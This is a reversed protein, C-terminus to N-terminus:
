LSLLLLLSKGVYSISKLYYLYYIYVRRLVWSNTYNKHFSHKEHNHDFETNKNTTLILNSGIADQIRNNFNLRGPPQNIYIQDLIWGPRRYLVYLSERFLGLGVKM